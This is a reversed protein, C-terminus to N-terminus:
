KKKVVRRASWTTSAKCLGGASDFTKDTLTGSATSGTVKGKMVAPQQSTGARLTFRGNSDLKASTFADQRVDLYSGGPCKDHTRTSVDSIKGNAIKFRMVYKKHYKPNTQGTSGKYSGSKYATAALATGAIALSITAAILVYHWRRRTM